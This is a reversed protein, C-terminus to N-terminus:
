GGAISSAAEAFQGIAEPFVGVLVVAIALIGFALALSPAVGKPEPEPAIVEPAPDMWVSQVVRAYYYLAIVANVAAIAALAVTWGNANQLVALFMVFKAYWGALPPIGALSFFFMTLLIGIGPAYSGLGAWDRIQGSGTRRAGAIVVAFAGLNMIGYILVYTVTAEFAQNLSDGEVLGAAAFPVLMFGAHAISSYALLRVINEQRLAVLNGVTMSLAALIWLAPGWIDAAGAFALYAVLLIGVFGAAKSGVSLYATVPTPAGEYTDPAWFHFPVAAVKFGFGVLVLLIGLVFVPEEAMAASAEGIGEFTLSGTMGYVLSMGYVLIAASLVGIVFFKLAAENSRTDGKRWGALLFAPGSVLELGVFLTVLDRSSAMVMGGLLSALLLFYYEGEYYRDSEIYAVSMLLVLYGTLIFFVKLVLAFDDVVYSGDFMARAGEGSAALTFIPILALTLGFIGVVASLWKRGEPLFLDAGLVALVTIGVIFDPALAHYDFM